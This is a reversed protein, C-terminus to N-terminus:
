ELHYVQYSIPEKTEEDRIVVLLDAKGARTAIETECEKESFAPVYWSGDSLVPPFDEVVPTIQLFYLSQEPAHDYGSLNKLRIKLISREEENSKEFSVPTIAWYDKVELTQGLRFWELTPSAPIKPWPGDLDIKFYRLDPTILYFIPNTIASPIQIWGITMFTYDPPWYEVLTIDYTWEDPVDIEEGTQGVVLVEEGSDKKTMCMTPVDWSALWPPYFNGEYEYQEWVAKIRGKPGEDNEIKSALGKLSHKMGILFWYKTYGERERSPHPFVGYVTYDWPVSAAATEITCALGRYRCARDVVDRVVDGRATTEYTSYLGRNEWGTSIKYTDAEKVVCAEEHREGLPGEFEITYYVYWAKTNGQKFAQNIEPSWGDGPYGGEESSGIFEERDLTIEKVAGNATFLDLIREIGGVQSIPPKEFLSLFDSFLYKQAESYDRKNAASYFAKVAEFPSTIMLADQESDPVTVEIKKAPEEDILGPKESVVSETLIERGCSVASILFLCM